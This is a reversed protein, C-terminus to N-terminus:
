YYYSKKIPEQIPELIPCETSKTNPDCYSISIQLKHIIKENDKGGSKYDDNLGYKLYILRMNWINNSIKNLSELSEPSLRAHTIILIEGIQTIIKDYTIETFNANFLQIDVYLQGIISILKNYVDSKTLPPEQPLGRM